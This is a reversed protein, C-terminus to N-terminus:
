PSARRLLHRLLRFAVPDVIFEKRLIDVFLVSVVVGGVIYALTLVRLRHIVVVVGVLRGWGELRRTERARAEVLLMVCWSSCRVYLRAVRVDFAKLLDELRREVKGLITAAQVTLLTDEGVWARPNELEATQRASLNLVRFAVDAGFIFSVGGAAASVM